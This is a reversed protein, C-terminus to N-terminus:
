EQEVARDAREGPAMRQARARALRRPDEEPDAARIEGGREVDDALDEVVDVFARAEARRREGAHLRDRDRRAAGRDDIELDLPRPTVSDHIVGEGPELAAEHARQDDVPRHIVLDHVLSGGLASAVAPRSARRALRCVYYM